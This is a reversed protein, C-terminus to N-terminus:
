KIKYPKNYISVNSKGKNFLYEKLMERNKEMEEITATNIRHVFPANPALKLAIDYKAWDNDLITVGYNEPKNYIDCGPLPMFSTLTVVDPNTEELFEIMKKASDKNEGPLGIMIFARTKFGEKKTIKLAYKNQSVTTRKNLYNQLINDEASEIGFGIEKCSSKKLLNLTNNDVQDVRMSCRYTIGKTSLMHSLKEFRPKNITFCDDQWRIENVGYEKILNDLDKEVNDVSRFRVKQKHLTPSACFTCHYPCGRSTMLTSSKKNFYKDKDLFEFAPGAFLDLDLLGTQTIVSNTPADIAKRFTYEGEGRCIVDVPMNDKIDIKWYLEDISDFHPGGVIIKSDGGYMDKIRNSVKILEPFDLTCASIGYIDAKPIKTEHAMDIFGIELGSINKAEAMVSLLGLPPDSYPEARWSEKLRIFYAKRM